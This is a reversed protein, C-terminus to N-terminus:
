RRTSRSILGLRAPARLPQPKAHYEFHQDITRQVIIDYAVMERFPRDAEDGLIRVVDLHLSTAFLLWLTKADEGLGDALMLHLGRSLEDLVPPALKTVSM